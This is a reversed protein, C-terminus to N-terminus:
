VRDDVDDASRPGGPRLRLGPLLEDARECGKRTFHWTYEDTKAHGAQVLTPVLEAFRAYLQDSYNEDALKWAEALAEDAADMRPLRPQSALAGVPLSAPLTLM